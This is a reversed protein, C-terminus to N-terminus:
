YRSASEKLVVRSTPIFRVGDVIMIFSRAIEPGIVVGVHRSLQLTARPREVQTWEQKVPFNVSSV